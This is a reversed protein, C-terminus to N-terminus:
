LKLLTSKGGGSPGVLLVACMRESAALSSQLGTIHAGLGRFLRDVGDQAQTVMVIEPISVEGRLHLVAGALLLGM